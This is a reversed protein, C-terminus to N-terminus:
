IDESRISIFEADDKHMFVLDELGNESPTPTTIYTANVKQITVPTIQTLKPCPPAESPIVPNHPKLKLSFKLKARPRRSVDSLKDPTDLYERVRRMQASAHDEQRMQRREHHGIQEDRM